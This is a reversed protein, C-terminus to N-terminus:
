AGRGPRLRRLAGAARGPGQAQSDSPGRATVTLDPLEAQRRIVRQAPQYRALRTTSESDSAARIEDNLLHDFDHSILMLNPHNWHM